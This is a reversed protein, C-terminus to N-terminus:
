VRKLFDSSWLTPEPSYATIVVAKNPNDRHIGWVAHIPRGSEGSSLVLVSPGRRADPYDEVVVASHVGIIIEMPVIGDERAEDYAHDSLAYKRELVLERVKALTASM